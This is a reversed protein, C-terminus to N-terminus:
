CLHKSGPATWLQGTLSHSLLSQCCVSAEYGSLCSLCAIISTQCLSASKVRRSCREVRATACRCCTHLWRKSSGAQVLSHQFGLAGLSPDSRQRNCYCREDRAVRFQAEFILWLCFYAQVSSADNKLIAIEWYSCEASKSFPRKSFMCIDIM